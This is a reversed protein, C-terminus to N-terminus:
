NDDEQAAAPSQGVMDPSVRWVNGRPYFHTSFQEYAISTGNRDFVERYFTVDLGEQPFETQKVTGAPLEWDIAELDEDPPIPDGIIPDSVTVTYGLDPGYIVVYVRTGETWSEVLLWSTSSPNVFKFNGGGLPDADPQLISADLGPSWGDLEYFRLRYRHPHWETIPMGAYFAARFVTTSVQCIGGGIDRGIREGDVVGAEVYGLEARIIGISHNFSFEGGPAVMTGNLLRAGVRVNTSRGEDSGEFSSSGTGLETTIGLADLNTSDIDPSIVSVPIEIAGHNSFFSAAVDQAFSTPKIKIGNISEITAYIGGGGWAVVANVPDRNIDAAFANALYKSLGKVDIEVGVAEAGTKTPDVTQIVFQGIEAGSLSWTNDGFTVKVPAALAAQLRTLSPELDASHVTSYKQLTPLTYVVPTLGSIAALVHTTAATRDVITGDIEPVISAKGNEIQIYADHPPVGLDADVTLFWQEMTQEDVVMAFPVSVADGVIATTATLRSLAGEERGIAWASDLTADIDVAIGLDALSPRWTKDGLTFTVIGHEVLAARDALVERAEGETLGGVSTGAVYVQPYVRDDYMGRVALLGVTLIALALALAVGARNVGRLTRVKWEGATAPVVASAFVPARDPNPSLSRDNAV